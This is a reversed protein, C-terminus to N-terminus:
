FELTKVVDTVFGKTGASGDVTAVYVEAGLEEFKEVYFIENEKNFGLVVMPNNGEALLAKCLGYMPPVGAGGGVLVPRDGTKATDYGNGLPTLVDLTEGEAMLSMQETGKGVTKYIITVTDETWDCVSIPRRLYLGELRINIFQGPRSVGHAGPECGLVM